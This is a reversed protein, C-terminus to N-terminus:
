DMLAVLVANQVDMGKRTLCLANARFALLGKAILPKIKIGFAEDLTIGHMREFALLDVGQTLRLGLMLTEFQRDRGAIKTCEVQREGMLYDHMNETNASRLEEDGEIRMSHAALGIGIYEKQQWYGLNHRCAFGELAFNSIEYQTYGYTNLLRIAQDYMRREEEEDPLSLSGSAIDSEMPTGPEVILGYLSVHTVALKIAVHLSNLVDNITQTPIGFMLDVSINKFGCEKAIQVTHAVDEVRHRRGLRKLLHEQAAQMGMSLRNVGHSILMELFTKDVDGPNVECTVEANPTPKISTLVKKLLALDFCSPTGGGIFVTDFEVAKYGDLESLLNTTYARMESERGSFSIFNCYRCKSKCFPIHIYLGAM